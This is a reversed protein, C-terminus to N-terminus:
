LLMMDQRRRRKARRVDVEGEEEEREEVVEDAEEAEKKKGVPCSSRHSTRRSECTSAERERCVTLRGGFWGSLRGFRNTGRNVM